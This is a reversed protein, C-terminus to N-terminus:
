PDLSPRASTLTIARTCGTLGAAVSLTAGTTVVDDLLVAGAPARVRLDFSPTGRSRKSAGARRRVWFRSGLSRAVPIGTRRGLAVALGAVPDVGYRWRRVMVRPIPVIAACDVALLPELVAALRGAIGSVAEYKLRHVLLRAAGEHTFASRVFVGDCVRDPATALTKLCGRCLWAPSAMRCAVCTM